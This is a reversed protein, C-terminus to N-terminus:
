KKIFQTRKVGNVISRSSLKASLRRKTKAAGTISEKVIKVLL